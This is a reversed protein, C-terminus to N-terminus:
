NNEWTSKGQYKEKPYKLVNKKMKEFFVKELDIELIQCMRLLYYFIDAVEDKSLNTLKFAILAEKDTKIIEIGREIRKCWVEIAKINNNAAAKYEDNKLFEESAEKFKGENILRITLPSGSLSGRYWSAVINQKLNNSLNDFNKINKKAQILKININKSLDKKAQEVSVMGDEKNNEDYFGYGSTINKEDGLRYNKFYKKGDIYIVKGTGEYNKIKDVYKDSENAIAGTTAMVAASAITTIDKKNMPKKM